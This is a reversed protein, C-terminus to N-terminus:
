QHIFKYIKWVLLLSLGEISFGFSIYLAMGLIFMISLSLGDKNIIVSIIIVITTIGIMFCISYMDFGPIFAESPNNINYSIIKKDGIKPILIKAVHYNKKTTTYTINNIKYSYVLEYMTRTKERHNDDRYRYERPLAEKFYGEILQNDKINIHRKYLFFIDVVTIAIGIFLIIISIILKKKNIKNYM